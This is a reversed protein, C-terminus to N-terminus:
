AAAVETGWAPPGASKDFEEALYVSNAQRERDKVLFYFLRSICVHCLVSRVSHRKNVCETNGSILGFEQTPEKPSIVFSKELRTEEEWGWQQVETAWVVCRTIGDRKDKYCEKLRFYGEGWEGSVLDKARLGWELAMVRTLDSHALVLSLDVSSLPVLTM